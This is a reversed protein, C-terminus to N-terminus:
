FKILDFRDSKKKPSKLNQQENILSGLNKDTLM